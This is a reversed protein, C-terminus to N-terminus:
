LEDFVGTRISEYRDGQRTILMVDLNMRQATELGAQKGLVNIATAWADAMMCNNARVSVSALPHSIPKGSRPDITHSYRQGDADFFNRYDGSTAVAGDSLPLAVLVESPAGDPQQIGVGWPRDVRGGTVRVEGGIEVFVHEADLGSLLEVIRDVGHGKAIASLDVTLEPIAKRLGPPEMRAQLHQYGIRQRIEALRQDSPVQQTREDPGFSWANVLPAVTVDFAGETQQSVELAYSVVEATDSSVAFWDTSDSQNFRSLESSKLYTSMQDNVRRLEADIQLRWDEPLTSPPNAIKVSYTTGMTRGYAEVVTVAGAAAQEGAAAATDSPAAADGHEQSRECGVAFLLAISFLTKCCPVNM